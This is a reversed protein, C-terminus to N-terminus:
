NHARTEAFQNNNVNNDIGSPVAHPDVGNREKISFYTNLWREATDRVALRGVRNAFSHGTGEVVEVVVESKSGALELIYSLYDFDGIKLKTHQAKLILTPVGRSTVTKWCNLLPFNANSPPPTGPLQARLARAQDYAISIRAGITTRSLRRIVKKWFGLSNALPLHFYPDMLIVGRCDKCAEATYLASVAGACLGVVVVSSLSFRQMLQTVKTSVLSAYGGKNIFGVLDAPPNGTSDGLGGLDIRIAPYGLQAFSDAWYVASDGTASRTPTLSNLLLVGVRKRELLTLEQGAYEDYAKHYTGIVVGDVTDLAFLERTEIAQKM